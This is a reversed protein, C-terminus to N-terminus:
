WGDELVSWKEQRRHGVVRYRRNRTANSRRGDLLRLMEEWERRRETPLRLLIWDETATWTQTCPPSASDRQRTIQEDIQLENPWQVNRASQWLFQDRKHVRQFMGKSRGNCNPASLTAEQFTGGEVFDRIVPMMNPPRGIRLPRESGERKHTCIHLTHPIRKACTGTQFSEAIQDCTYGQFCPRMIQNEVATVKPFPPGFPRAGVKRDCSM